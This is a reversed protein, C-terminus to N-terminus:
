NLIELIRNRLYLQEFGVTVGLEFDSFGELESSMREALTVYIPNGNKKSSETQQIAEIFLFNLYFVRRLDVQFSKLLSHAATWVAILIEGYDQQGPGYLSNYNCFLTKPTKIFESKKFEWFAQDFPGRLEYYIDKEKKAQM